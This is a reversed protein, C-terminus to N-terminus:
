NKLSLEASPFLVNTIPKIQRNITKDVNIAPMKLSFKDSCLLGSGKRREGGKRM